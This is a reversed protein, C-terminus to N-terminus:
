IGVENLNSRHFVRTLIPQYHHHSHRIDQNTEGRAQWNKFQYHLRYKIIWNTLQIKSHLPRIGYLLMHPKPTFNGNRKAMEKPSAACIACAMTSTVHPDDEDEEAM